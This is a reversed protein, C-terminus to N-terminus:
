LTSNPQVNSSTSASSPFTSYRNSITSVAPKSENREQSNVQVSTTIRNAFLENCAPSSMSSRPLIDVESFAPPPSRSRGNVQPLDLTNSAGPYVVTSSTNSMRVAEDYSPPRFEFKPDINPCPAFCPRIRMQSHIADFSPPFPRYYTPTLSRNLGEIQSQTRIRRRSLALLCIIMTFASFLGIAAIIIMLIGGPSLAEASNSSHTM